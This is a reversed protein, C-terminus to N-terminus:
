TACHWYQDDTDDSFRFFNLNQSFFSFNFFFIIKKSRRYERHTTPLFFTLHVYTHTHRSFFIILNSLVGFNFCRETISNYEFRTVCFSQPFNFYFVFTIVWLNQPFKKVRKGSYMDYWLRWRSLFKLVATYPWILSM